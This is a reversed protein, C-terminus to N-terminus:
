APRGCCGPVGEAEHGLDYALVLQAALNKLAREVNDLGPALESFHHIYNRTKVLWAMFTTKGLGAGAELVFYGRDNDRLFSDLEDLLWDRGAFHDLDLRPLAFKSLTILDKWLIRLCRQRKGLLLHEGGSTIICMRSLATGLPSVLEASM